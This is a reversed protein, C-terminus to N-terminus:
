RSSTSWRYSAPRCAAATPRLIWDGDKSRMALRYWVVAQGSALVAIRGEANFARTLEFYVNQPVEAM